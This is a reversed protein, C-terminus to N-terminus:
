CIAQTENDKAVTHGNFSKTGQIKKEGVEKLKFNTNVGSLDNGEDKPNLEPIWKALLGCSANPFPPLVQFSIPNVKQKDCKFSGILNTVALEALELSGTAPLTSVLQM